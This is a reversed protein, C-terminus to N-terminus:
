GIYYELAARMESKSFPVDYLCSGIKDIIAGRVSNGVNKKDQITLAIINAVESSEIRVKGYISFLFEEIEILERESLLGKKYSIYSEMIMGAAVGEGHLIRKPKNELYYTEVAHGLTHGFNLTKRPGKETFDEDVISKKIAISHEILGSFDQDDLDIKKIVDWMALDKILCHKAIEAFGSRLEEWMLTQIFRPDVLVAKPLTFTGIHN